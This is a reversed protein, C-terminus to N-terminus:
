IMRSSLGGQDVSDGCTGLGIIRIDGRWSVLREGGWVPGHRASNRCGGHDPELHAPSCTGRREGKELAGAKRAHPAPQDDDDDGYAACM